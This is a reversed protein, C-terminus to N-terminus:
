LRQYTKLTEWRFPEDLKVAHIKDPGNLCAIFKVLLELDIEDILVAGTDGDYETILCAKGVM